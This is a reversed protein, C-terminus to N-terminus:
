LIYLGRWYKAWYEIKNNTKVNIITNLKSLATEYNENKYEKIAQYYAHVNPEEM